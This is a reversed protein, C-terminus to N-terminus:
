LPRKGRVESDSSLESLDMYDDFEIEGSGSADYERALKQVDAKKVEFGLARLIAKLQGLDIRGTRETDFIEFAEKLESRQSKQTFKPFSSSQGSALEM